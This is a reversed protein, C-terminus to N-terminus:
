VWREVYPELFSRVGSVPGGPEQTGTYQLMSYAYEGLRESGLVLGGQAATMRVLSAFQLVALRLDDPVYGYGATYQVKVNGLGPPWVGARYTAALTGRYRGTDFLGGLNSGLRILKGSVGAPTPQGDDGPVEGDRPWTWEQGVTLLTTAAFPSPGDGNAGTADLWVNAVATVPRRRLLLVPQGTGDYYETAERRNFSRHCYREVAWAVGDLIQQLRDDQSTDSGLNLHTRLEDVSALTPM